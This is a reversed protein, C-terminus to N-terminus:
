NGFVDDVAQSSVTPQSSQTDGKKYQQGDKISRKDNVYDSQYKDKYKKVFEAPLSGITESMTKGTSANAFGEVETQYTWTSVDVYTGVENKEQKNVQKRMVMATVVKGIWEVPVSKEALIEKRDKDLIKIQKKETKPENRNSGTIAFDLSRIINYGPLFNQDGKANVYFPKGEKNTIYQTMSMQRGDETEFDVKCFTAGSASKDFYAMKVVFDYVGTETIYKSGGGLNDTPKFEVTGFDVGDFLSM